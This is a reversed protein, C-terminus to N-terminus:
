AAHEAETREARYHANAMRFADRVMSPGLAHMCDALLDTLLVCPDVADGRIGYHEPQWLADMATRAREARDHNSPFPM